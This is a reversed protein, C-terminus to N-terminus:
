AFREPDSMEELTKRSMLSVLGYHMLNNAAVFLRPWLEDDAHAALRRSFSLSPVGELMFTSDHAREKVDHRSRVYRPMYASVYLEALVTAFDHTEFFRNLFAAAVERAEAEEEKTVRVGADQAAFARPSAFTLVLTCVLVVRLLGRKM